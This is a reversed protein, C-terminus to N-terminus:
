GNTIVLNGIERVLPSDLFSSKLELEELQAALVNILAEAQELALKLRGWDETQRLIQSLGSLARLQDYPQGLKQWRGVAGEFAATAKTGKGEALALWGKGELLCAATVPTGYQRDLRELQQQASDAARVMEPWGFAAPLRCIFLLAM